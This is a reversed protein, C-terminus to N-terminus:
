SGDQFANGDHVPLKAEAMARELADVDEGTLHPPEHMVQRIALPSGPQGYAVIPEVSVSVPQGDAYPLAEDLEITKRRAIGRYTMTNVGQVREAM